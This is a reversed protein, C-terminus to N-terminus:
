DILKIHIMESKKMDSQLLKKVTEGNLEYEIGVTNPPKTGVNDAHILLYHLGARNLRLELEVPENELSYDELIWEGNFNISVRDGDLLIHDYVKLKLIGDVASMEVESLKVEREKVEKPFELVIPGEIGSKLDKEISVEEEFELDEELSIFKHSPQEILKNYDIYRDYSMKFYRPYELLLPVNFSQDNIVQNIDDLFGYYSLNTHQTLITNYFQYQLSPDENKLNQKRLELFQAADTIFAGMKQTLIQKIHTFDFDEEVLMRSYLFDRFNKHLIYLDDNPLYNPDYKVSLVIDSVPVYISRIREWLEIYKREGTRTYSWELLVRHMISRYKFFDEYIKEFQGLKAMIYNFNNDERIDKKLLFRRIINLEYVTLDCVYKINQLSRNFDSHTKLNISKFIQEPAKQEFKKFSNDKFLSVPLQSVIKKDLTYSADDQVKLLEENLVHLHRHIENMGHISLNVYQIYSNVEPVSQGFAINGIGLIILVLLREKFFKVIM